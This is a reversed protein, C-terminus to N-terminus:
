LKKKMLYKNQKGLKYKREVSFYNKEYFRRAAINEEEVDLTYEDIKWEKFQLEINELLMQAVGKGTYNKDIGIYVLQPRNDTILSNYFFKKFFIKVLETKDSVILVKLLQFFNKFFFKKFLTGTDKTILCFGIVSNNETAIVLHGVKDKVVTEYFIKVTKRNLATLDCIKPPLSKVHLEAILLVDQIHAQRIQM